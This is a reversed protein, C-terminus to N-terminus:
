SMLENHLEEIKRQDIEAVITRIGAQFEEVLVQARDRFDQEIDNLQKKQEETLKTVM